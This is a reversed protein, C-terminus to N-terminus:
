AVAFFDNTDTMVCVTLGLNSGLRPGFVIDDLNNNDKIYAIMDEDDEMFPSHWVTTFPTSTDIPMAQPFRSLTTDKLRQRSVQAVKMIYQTMLEADVSCGGSCM